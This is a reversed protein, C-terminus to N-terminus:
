HEGCGRPPPESNLDSNFEFTGLDSDKCNFRRWGSSGKCIRSGLPIEQEGCEWSETSVSQATPPFGKLHRATAPMGFESSRFSNANEFSSENM